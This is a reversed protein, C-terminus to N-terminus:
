KEKYYLMSHCSGELGPDAIQEKFERCMCMTDDTKEKRDPCYGSTREQGEKITSVIDTDPNLRITM